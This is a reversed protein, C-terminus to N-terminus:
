KEKISNKNEAIKQILLWNEKYENLELLKAKSVMKYKTDIDDMPIIFCIGNDKDVAVYLDCDQSTIRKGKNNEHTFDIGQGGRDRDVFSIENSSIGKVQVRLLINKYDIVADYRSSRVDVNSCNYGALIARSLFLFQASDGANATMIGSNINQINKAFGGISLLEIMKIALKKFDSEIYKYAEMDSILMDSGQKPEKLNSKINEMLLLVLNNIIKNNDKELNNKVKLFCNKQYFQTLDGKYFFYENAIDKIKSKVCGYEKFKRLLENTLSLDIDEEIKNIYYEKLYNRLNTWSHFIEEMEKFCGSKKFNSENIISINEKIFRDKDKDKNMKIICWYLKYLIFISFFVFFSM